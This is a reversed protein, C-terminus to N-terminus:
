CGRMVSLAAIVMPYSNTVSLIFYGVGMLLLLLSFIQDQRLVRRVKKFQMSVLAAAMTMAAIALGIQTNNVGRM